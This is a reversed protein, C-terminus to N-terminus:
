LVKIYFTCDKERKFCRRFIGWFIIRSIRHPIQRIVPLALLCMEPNYATALTGPLGPSQSACVGFFATGDLM